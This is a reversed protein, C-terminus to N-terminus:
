PVTPETAEQLRSELDSMLDETPAAPEADLSDLAGSLLERMRRREEDITSATREAEARVRDLIEDAEREAEDRRQEVEVLAALAAGTRADVEAARERARRLTQLARARSASRVDDAARAAALLLEAAAPDVAAPEVVAPEEPAQHADPRGAETLAAEAQREAAVRQEDEFDRLRDGLGSARESMERLDALARDREGELVDVREALESARLSMARLDADAQEREIESRQLRNEFERLDKRTPAPQGTPPAAARMLEAVSRASAAAEGEAAVLETELLEAREVLRECQKWAAAYADAVRALLRDVKERDYGRMVVPLNESTIDEPRLTAMGLRDLNM